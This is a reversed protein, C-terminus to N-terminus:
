NQSSPLLQQYYFQFLQMSIFHVVIVKSHYELSGRARSTSFNVAGGGAHLRGQSLLGM